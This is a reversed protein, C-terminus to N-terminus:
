DPLHLHCRVCVSRLRSLDTARELSLRLVDAGQADAHEVLLFFPERGERLAEFRDRRCVSCRFRDRAFLAARTEDSFARQGEDLMFISLSSALRFEGTKLDPADGYAEIPFGDERLRRAWLAGSRSGAVRDMEDVDIVSGVLRQLLTLVRDRPSAGAEQVEGVIAWRAKRVADPERSILRYRGGDEEIEYGHEVRLERVRRAWEGIGSVAALEDGYVWEGLHEQLYLLVLHRAGSGRPHRPRHGGYARVVALRLRTIADLVLQQDAQAAVATRLDALDEIARVFDEVPDTNPM